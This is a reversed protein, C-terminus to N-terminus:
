YFSFFIGAGCSRFSHPASALTPKSNSCPHGLGKFPTLVAKSLGKKPGERGCSSQLNMCTEEQM